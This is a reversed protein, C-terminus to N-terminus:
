APPAGSDSERNSGLYPELGALMWAADREGVVEHLVGVFHEWTPESPADAWLGLAARVRETGVGRDAPTAKSVDDYFRALATLQDQDSLRM